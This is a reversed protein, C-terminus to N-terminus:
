AEQKGSATIDHETTGECPAVGTRHCLRLIAHIAIPNAFLMFLMIILIKLSEYPNITMWYIWAGLLCLLFGPSDGKGAVHGRNYADPMRIIGITATIFFFTGGFILFIGVWQCILAIV